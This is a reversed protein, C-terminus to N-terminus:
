GNLVAISTDLLCSVNMINGVGSLIYPTSITFGDGGTRPVICGGAALKKITYDPDYIWAKGAFAKALAVEDDMVSDVDRAHLKATPDTVNATNSVVSFGTWKSSSYNAKKNYLINQIKAINTMEAYANDVIPVATTCARFTVVNQLAVQSGTCLTPSIGGKVATDRNTYDDTWRNGAQRCAYGPDVGPLVQNVYNQAPDSAAIKAMLGVAIAAIEAPHTLSGPVAIIGNTRDSPAASAVALLATLAASGTTLTDGMVVRFPRAVINDYCGTLQDAIGNYTSLAALTTADQLYGHVVDTFFLNNAGSGSGLGNAIDTAVTPVGAGATTAVVAAATIGAPFQDGPTQNYAITIGNGWIGKSKATAVLTTTGTLAVPLEPDTIAAIVLAPIATAATGSPIAVQYLTGAIYVYLTGAATSTGTFTTTFVAQTGTETEPFAYIPVGYNTGAFAQKVLRHLCSGYGYLAGAAAPSTMLAPQAATWGTTTTPSGMVLIARPLNNASAQLIVNQVAVGVGAARSSSIISM